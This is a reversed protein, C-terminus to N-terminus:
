NDAGEYLVKIFKQTEKEEAEIITFKSGKQFLMEYEVDKFNSIANIYAGKSGKPVLIQMFIPKSTFASNKLVATSSFARDDITQDVWQAIPKNKLWEGQTFNNLYTGRWAVLNEEIDAKEIANTINLVKDQIFTGATQNGRLYDNIKSYEHTTYYNLAEKENESWNNAQDKMWKPIDDATSLTKYSQIELSEDIIKRQWQEQKKLEIEKSLAKYDDTNNYKMEKYNDLSKPAKDEGLLSIIENFEDKEAKIAKQALSKGFGAVQENSKIPTLGTEKLHQKLKDSWQRVKLLEKTNDVGGAQLTVARTKWTRIQRECYRQRQEDDYTKPDYKEKSLRESVGEIYAYFSHRCNWGCLGPGTGYGTVEVLSKYKKSKGSISYIGGQWIAHEPRSDAHSTVEVLDTELETANNLSVEATAQNVGTICARRVAAEISTNVGSVYDFANVGDAAFKKVAVEVAKDVTFAGSQVMLQCQDLHQNLKGSADIAITGTLRKMTNYTRIANANLVQTLAKSASLPITNKPLIGAEITAKQTAIDTKISKIGAEKFIEKVKALSINLSQAIYKQIEAQSLGLEKLKYIQWEATPTMVYDAGAIRRAIDAQIKTQLESYIEQLPTAIGDLYEPQLM